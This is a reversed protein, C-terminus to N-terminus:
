QVPRVLDGDMCLCIDTNATLTLTAPWYMRASFNIQPAIFLPKSRTDVARPDPIGNQAYSAIINAAEAGAQSWAIAPGAGATVLWLADQSYVKNGITVEVVGTNVLQAIDDGLSALNTPAAAGSDAMQPRRKFFLRLARWFFAKPAALQFAVEMNSLDNTARVNFWRDLVTTTASTFTQTDWWRWGIWEKRGKYQTNYDQFEKPYDESYDGPQGQNMMRSM